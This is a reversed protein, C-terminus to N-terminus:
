KKQWVMSYLFSRDKPYTFAEYPGGFPLYKGRNSKILEYGQQCYVGEIFNQTLEARHQWAIENKPDIAEFVLQAVYLDSQRKLVDALLDIAIADYKLLHVATLALGLVDISQKKLPLHRLDAALFVVKKKIGSKELIDKVFVLKESAIDNCILISGSDMKDYVTRAFLGHGTGADLIVKARYDHDKFRDGLWNIGKYIENFYESATAEIYDLVDNQSLSGGSEDAEPARVMGDAITLKYGCSCSLGGEIVQNDLIKSANLSLDKHCNQCEFLALAELPFGLVQQAVTEGQELIGIRELLTHNVDELRRLEMQIRNVKSQYIEKKFSRENDYVLPSLKKYLLIQKIEALTFDCAKLDLIIEMDEAVREDFEFQGGLKLPTLLGIEMYYRVTDISVQYCDAFKGIRM